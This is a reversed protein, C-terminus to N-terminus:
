KVRETNIGYSTRLQLEQNGAKVTSKYTYVDAKERESFQIYRHESKYVITMNLIQMWITTGTHPCVTETHGIFSIRIRLTFLIM